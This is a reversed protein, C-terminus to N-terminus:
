YRKFVQRHIRTDAKFAQAHRYVTRDLQTLEDKYAEAHSAGVLEVDLRRNSGFFLNEYCDKLQQFTVEKIAELLKEKRDFEYRGCDIEAHFQKALEYLSICPKSLRTIVAQVHTEFTEQTMNELEEKYTKLFTTIRHGLYVPSAKASQIIIEFGM